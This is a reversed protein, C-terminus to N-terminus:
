GSQRGAIFESLSKSCSICAHEIDRSRYPAIATLKRSLYGGFTVNSWGRPLEDTLGSKAGCIDCQYEQRVSM